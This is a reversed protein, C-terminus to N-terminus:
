LNSCVYYNVLCSGGGRSAGKLDEWDRRRPLDKSHWGANTYLQPSDNYCSQYLVVDVKQLSPFALCAMPAPGSVDIDDFYELNINLLVKTFSPRVFGDKQKQFFLSWRVPSDLHTQIDRGCEPTSFQYVVDINTLVLAKTEWLSLLSLFYILQEHLEHLMSLDQHTWITRHQFQEIAEHTLQKNAVLCPLKSTYPVQSKYPKGNRCQM